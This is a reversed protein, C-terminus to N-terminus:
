RDGNPERREAAMSVFVRKMQEDTMAQAPFNLGNPRRPYRRPAHLAALVYRGTLWAQLDAMEAERRRRAAACAFEAQLERPTLNLLDYAGEIGLEAARKVLAAASERLSNQAGTM